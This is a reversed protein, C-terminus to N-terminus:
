KRPRQIRLKRDTAVVFCRQWADISESRFLMELRRHVALRGPAHLRVLLIGPHSGPRFKRTDSFDLDQTVLFRAEKNAAQWIVGDDRGALQEQEVTDVDHGLETLVPAISVPINEDLKIKM